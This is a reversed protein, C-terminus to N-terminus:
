ETWGLSRINTFPKLNKDLNKSFINTFVHTFVYTIIIGLFKKIMCFFDAVSTILIEEFLTMWFVAPLVASKIPLLIVVLTEFFNM